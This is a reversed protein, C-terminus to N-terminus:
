SQYLGYIAFGWAILNMLITLGVAASGMDKIVKSQPHIDLSIRDVINELASNLVEVVLLLM